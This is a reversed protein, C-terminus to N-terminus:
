KLHRIVSHTLLPQFGYCLGATLWRRCAWTLHELKKIGRHGELSRHAMRSHWELSCSSVRLNTDARRFISVRMQSPEPLHSGGRHKLANAEERLQDVDDWGSIKKVDIEYHSEIAKILQGRSRSLAPPTVGWETPLIRTALALLFWDVFANLHYIIAARTLSSAALYVEEDSLRGDPLFGFNGARRAAEARQALFAPVEELLREIPEIEWHVMLDLRIM